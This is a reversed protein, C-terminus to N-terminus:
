SGLKCFCGAPSISKFEQEVRCGLGSGQCVPSKSWLPSLFEWRWGNSFQALPPLLFGPNEEQLGPGLRVPQLALFLAARLLGARASRHGDEHVSRPTAASLSSAIRCLCLYMSRPHLRTWSCM